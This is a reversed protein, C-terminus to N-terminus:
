NGEDFEIEKAVYYGSPVWIAHVKVNSGVHLRDIDITVKVVTSVGGHTFTVM